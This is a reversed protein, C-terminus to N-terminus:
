NCIIIRFCFRAAIGASDALSGVVMPLVTSGACGVAFMIGGSIGKGKIFEDANEANVPSIAAMFLAMIIMIAVAAISGKAFLLVSLGAALGIWQVILINERKFKKM